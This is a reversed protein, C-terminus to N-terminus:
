QNGGSGPEGAAAPEPHANKWDAYRDAVRSGWRGYWAYGNRREHGIEDLRYKKVGDRDCFFPRNTGIEYFRAWLPPAGADEVVKRDGGVTEVRLGPLKVADFWRVGAHVARVAEPTPEELSMLMLLVGASEMGSLSALEFTRAGCPELTQDDHQACWATLRGDVKVQCRLLCDIGREFARAGISRRKPDLFAFDDSRSADRVLALLNVMTDDNLTVYRPYGKGPPSTQPWGGSEYQAEFVHDLAKIVAARYPERQTVRYARALFRVEGVTAGNDFTGKIAKPDGEYPARSTDFNKPWDGLAAQHSLVNEAVQRAEDSRFWADPKRAHDGWRFGAAGAPAAAALVVVITLLQVIRM